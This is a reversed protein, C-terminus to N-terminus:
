YLTCPYDIISNSCYRCVQKVTARDRIPQAFRSYLTIEIHGNEPMALKESDSPTFNFQISRRTINQVATAIKSKNGIQIHHCFWLNDGELVVAYENPYEHFEVTKVKPTLLSVEKIEKTAQTQDPGSYKDPQKELYSRFVNHRYGDM